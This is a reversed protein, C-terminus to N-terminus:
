PFTVNTPHRTRAEPRHDITVYGGNERFYNHVVM